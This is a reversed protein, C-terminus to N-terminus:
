IICCFFLRLDCLYATSPKSIFYPALNFKFKCYINMGKNIYLELKNYNVMDLLEGAIIFDVFM